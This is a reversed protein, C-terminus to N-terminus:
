DGCFGLELLALSSFFIVFSVIFKTIDAFFDYSFFTSDGADITKTLSVLVFLADVGILSFCFSSTRM